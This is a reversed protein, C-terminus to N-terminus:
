ALSYAWVGFGWATISAAYSERADADLAEVRNGHDGKGLLRTTYIGDVARDAM